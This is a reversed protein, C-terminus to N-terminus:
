AKIYEAKLNETDRVLDFKIYKDSVDDYNMKFTGVYRLMNFGLADRAKAFVIHLCERNQRNERQKVISNMAKQNDNLAREYITKGDPSLENNWIDYEYLRPFWVQAGKNPIKWAGRQLIKGTFGFLRLVNVQTRLVVNSAVSIKGRQIYKEPGLDIDWPTFKEEKNSEAKCLEIKSVFADVDKRIQELPRVKHDPGYIKIREITHQTVEIIDRSRLDDAESQNVHHPEDIELHLNFQPFYLDTLARTGDKRRVLQQTIFEIDDLKHLIRSIIFIEWDKHVIRKLSKIIYEQKTM